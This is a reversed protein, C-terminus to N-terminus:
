TSLHRARALCFLGFCGLGLALACLLAPGYPQELVTRLATDLGGSRNPDHSIAAYGFLAGIAAIALGKAVYGVKGLLLYASGSEGSKGEASLSDRLEDSLGKRIHAVGVCVIVLGILGVLWTGAPWDMVKATFSRDKQDGSGGGGLATSVASAGIAGYVIAKGLSAARLRWRETDKADRHGFAAELLRWVVLCFMGIAVAWVLVGGLPKGALEKMAGHPSAQHKQHGFALQIALWAILLHVVGYAVFGFRIAADLWDSDAAERRLDHQDLM